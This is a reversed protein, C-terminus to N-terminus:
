AGVIAGFALLMVCFLLAVVAFSIGSAGEITASEIQEDTSDQILTEVVTKTAFLWRVLAVFLIVVAILESM